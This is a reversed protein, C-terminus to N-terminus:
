ETFKNLFYPEAEQACVPKAYLFGQIMHCGIDISFDRQAETEVGEALIRLGLATFAHSIHKVVIASQENDMASWILSKDLKLTDWPLQLVSAINSYGTGFDDLGFLVGKEHMHHMFTQVEQFNDVLIRETLEIKIKEFPVHNATIIQTFKEILAKDTFQIASINISIGEFALGRNSLQNIFQCVKNLIQYTMPVILGTDEAIPIFENPSLTGLSTHTLRTLAEATFFSKQNINYIPQFHVELNDKELNDKLIEIIEEKRNAQEIMESTFYVCDSLVDSKAQVITYEISHIISEVHNLADQSRVVGIVSTIIPNYNGISWPCSMRNHIREVLSSIQIPSTEEMLIAFEDGSFRYLFNRNVITELYASIKQLFLDGHHQGLKSNIQKFKKLSLVIVVFPDSKRKELKLALMKLFVQRNPLNTLYDISIQKNELYLYILLLACTAASGSLILTPFIQQVIIVLVALLPFASLIRKEGANCNSTSFRAVLISFLCYTYFVVYTSSVYPGRIYSDTANMDFILKTFVNSLVLLIYLLAPIFGWLIIPKM